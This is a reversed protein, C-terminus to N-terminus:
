SRGKTSTIGNPTAAFHSRLKAAATPARWTAIAALGTAIASFIATLLTLHDTM